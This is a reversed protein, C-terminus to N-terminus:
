MVLVNYVGGGDNETCHAHLHKNWTCIHAFCTACDVCQYGIGGGNYKREISKLSPDILLLFQCEACNEVSTAEDEQNVGLVFENIIM